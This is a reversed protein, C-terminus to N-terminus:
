FSLNSLPFFRVSYDDHLWLASYHSIVQLDAWVIRCHSSLNTLLLWGDQPCCYLSASDEPFQFIMAFGM